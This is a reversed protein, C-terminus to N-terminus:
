QARWTRRWDYGGWGDIRHRRDVDIFARAHDIHTRTHDIITRHVM